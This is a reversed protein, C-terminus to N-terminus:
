ATAAHSQAAKTQHLPLSVQLQTGVGQSHLQLHGGCQRVRERMSGIGVGIKTPNSNDIVPPLGLGNDEVTIAIETPALSIRVTAKTAHSHKSVNSLSEQVVRFITTEVDLPMRTSDHPLDLNVLIGSRESFGEVFQRLAPFVGLEELLPPHLVYSFTRVEQLSRRALEGCEALKARAETSHLQERGLYDIDVIMMSLNQGTTDHLERALRRREDDQLSLLRGTMERLRERAQKAEIAHALTSGIAAFVEQLLGNHQIPTSSFFECVATASEGALVPMGLASRLGLERAAHQGKLDLEHALDRLVIPRATSVMRARWDVGSRLHSMRLAKDRFAQADLFPVYWVEKAGHADLADDQSLIRAHAFPWRTCECVRRLCLLLADALSAAEDATVKATRLLRVYMPQKSQTEEDSRFTDTKHQKV